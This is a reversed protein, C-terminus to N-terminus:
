VSALVRTVTASSGRYGRLIVANYAVGSTPSNFPDSKTIVVAM